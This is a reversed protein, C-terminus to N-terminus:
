CEFFKLSYGRNELAVVRDRLLVLGFNFLLQLAGNGLGLCHVVRAHSQLLEFTIGTGVM